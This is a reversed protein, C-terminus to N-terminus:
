ITMTRSMHSYQPMNNIHQKTRDCQYLEGSKGRMHNGKKPPSKTQPIHKLKGQDSEEMSKQLATNHFTAMAIIKRKHNCLKTGLDDNWSVNDSSWQKSAINADFNFVKDVHLPCELGCKCTGKTQLYQRIHDSSTLCVGSPSFTNCM